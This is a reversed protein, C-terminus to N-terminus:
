KVTIKLVFTWENQEGGEWPRSYNMTITANGAKLPKFTWVDKAPTGPAANQPAVLNHEYQSIASPDSITANESWKYGTSPNSALSVVLSQPYKLEIEQTIHKQAMLDDYSIEVLKGQSGPNLPPVPPTSPTTCGIVGIATVGIIVLSLVTAIKIKM